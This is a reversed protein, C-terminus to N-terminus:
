CPSSDEPSVAAAYTTCPRGRGFASPGPEVARGGAMPLHPPGHALHAGMTWPELGRHWSSHGGASKRGHLATRAVRPCLVFRISTFLVDLPPRTRLSCTGSDIRGTLVCGAAGSAGGRANAPEGPPPSWLRLPTLLLCSSLAPSLFPCLLPPPLLLSLLPLEALSVLSRPGPLRQLLQM